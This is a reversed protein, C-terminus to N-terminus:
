FSAQALKYITIALRCEPAIPEEVLTNKIMKDYVHDLIFNITEWCMRFTQSFRDPGFTDRVTEWWGKNRVFRRCSRKRRQERRQYLKSLLWLFILSRFSSFLVKKKGMGHFAQTVHAVFSAVLLETAFLFRELWLELWNVCQLNSTPTTVPWETDMRPGHIPAVLFAQFEISSEFAPEQRTSWDRKKYSILFLTNWFDIRKCTVRATHGYQM